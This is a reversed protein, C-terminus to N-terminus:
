TLVIASIQRGYDAEGLAQSRRFSFFETGDTYTCLRSVQNAAIGARGLRQGVYAGLDFHPRAGPEPRMFFASSAPDRELFAQEFEPGVQYAAQGIAPGVAAVIRQPSAGLRQM